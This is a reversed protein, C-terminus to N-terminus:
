DREKSWFSYYTFGCVSACGWGLMICFIFTVIYVNRALALGRIQSSSTVFFRWSLDTFLRLIRFVEMVEIVLNFWCIILSVSLCFFFEWVIDVFRYYVMVARRYVVTIQWFRSSMKFETWKSFLLEEEDNQCMYIYNGSSPGCAGVRKTIRYVFSGVSVIFIRATVSPM